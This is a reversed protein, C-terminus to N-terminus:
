DSVIFIGVTIERSLDPNLLSNATLKFRGGIADQTVSEAFSVQGIESLVLSDIDFDSNALRELNYTVSDGDSVTAAFDGVFTDGVSVNIDLDGAYNNFHPCSVIPTSGVHFITAISPHTSESKQAYLSANLAHDNVSIQTIQYTGLQQKLFPITAVFESSSPDLLGDAEDRIEFKVSRCTPDIANIWIDRIPSNADDDNMKLNDLKVIFKKFDRYPKDSNTYDSVLLSNLVPPTSDYKQSEDLFDGLSSYLLYPQSAFNSNHAFM